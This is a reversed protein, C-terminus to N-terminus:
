TVADLSWHCVADYRVGNSRRTSEFLVMEEFHCEFDPAVLAAPPATICRRALTVHPHYARREVRVGNRRLRNRLTGVLTKLENPQESASLCSIEPKPWYDVADLRLTFSGTRIDALQQELLRVKNLSIEGLFALTIHFNERPVPRLFPPLSSTRWHEIAASTDVPIPLGIFARM